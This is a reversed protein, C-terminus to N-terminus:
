KKPNMRNKAKNTHNRRVYEIYRTAARRLTPRPSTSLQELAELAERSDAHRFASILRHQHVPPSTKAKRAIWGPANKPDHLLLAEAYRMRVKPRRAALFLKRVRPLSERDGLHGLAIGAHARVLPVPDSLLKRIPRVSNADGIKGLARAASMRVSASPSSLKTRIATVARGSRLDRLANIAQWCTELEKSDIRDILESEANPDGLRHIHKLVYSSVESSRRVAKQVTPLANADGIDALARVAWRLDSSDAERLHNAVAEMACKGGVAALAYGARSRVALEPDDLMDALPGIANADGSKGLAWCASRRVQTEEHGLAHLLLPLRGPIDWEALQSVAARRPWPQGEHIVIGLIELGDPLRSDGIAYVIEVYQDKTFHQRHEKWIALGRKDGLRALATAVAADREHGYRGVDRKLLNHIAPIAVKDGAKALRKAALMATQIDEANLQNRIARIPGPGGISDLARIADRHLYDQKADALIDILDGVAKSSHLARLGDIALERLPENAKTPPQRLIELLDKELAMGGMEAIEFGAYRCVSRDLADPASAWFKLLARAQDPGGLWRLADLARKATAQDEDASTVMEMLPGIANPDALEGLNYSVTSLRNQPARLKALMPEVARGDGIWGLATVAMFAMRPEDSDLLRILEPVAERVGLDGLCMAATRKEEVTGTSLDEMWQAVAPDRTAAGGWVPTISIILVFTAGIWPWSSATEGGPMDIEELFSSLWRSSAAM